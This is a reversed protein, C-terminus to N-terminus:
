AEVIVYDDEVRVPFTEAQLQGAALEAGSKVATRYQRVKLTQPDCWSKGTRVDFAWGHWPCKM